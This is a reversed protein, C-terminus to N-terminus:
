DISCCQVPKIKPWTALMSGDNSGDVYDSRMNAGKQNRKFNAIATKLGTETKRNKFTVMQIEVWIFSFGSPNAPGAFAHFQNTDSIPALTARQLLKDPDWIAVLWNKPQGAFVQFKKIFKLPGEIHHESERQSIGPSLGERM